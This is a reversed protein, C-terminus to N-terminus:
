SPHILFVTYQGWAAGSPRTHGVAVGLTLNRQLLVVDPLEGLDLDITELLVGRLGRGQARSEENLAAHLAASPPEEGASVARAHQWLHTLGSMRTPPPLGRATRERTIRAFFRDADEVHDNSDFFAYTSVVMGLAEPDAVPVAGVALQRVDPRMLVWRGGPQELAESLWRAVDRTGVVSQGVIDSWRIPSRRVRWGAMLGLAMVDQDDREGRLISALMHPAVEQHVRSQRAALTVEPLGRARRVANLRAVVTPGATAPDDVAAPEGVPQPAFPPTPTEETRRVMVTGVHDTLVRGLTMTGIQVLATDDGEAMPCRLEIEPLQFGPTVRCRDVGYDGQTVLGFVADAEGHLRGRLIALGDAAPPEPPALEVKPDSVVLIVSVGEGDRHVGFGARGGDVLVPAIQERLQDGAQAVVEEASARSDIQGISGARGVGVASSGCAALLYRMLRDTPLLEHEAYFRATERAVCRLSASRTVSVGRQAIAADLVTEFAGEPEYVPDGPAPTSELTWRDVSIEGQPLLPGLDPPPASEIAAQVRRPAPFRVVPRSPRAERDASPSRRAGCGPALAVLLALVPIALLRLQRM